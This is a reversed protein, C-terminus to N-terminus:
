LRKSFLSSINIANHSFTTAGSNSGYKILVIEAILEGVGIVAVVGIM